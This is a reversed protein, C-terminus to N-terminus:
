SLVGGDIVTELATVRSALATLDSSDAKSAISTSITTSLDTVDNSVHTHASPTYTSPKNTIDQWDITTPADSGGQIETLTGATYCIYLKNLTTDLVLEGAQANTAYASVQATTGRKHKITTM